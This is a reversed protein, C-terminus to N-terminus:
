NKKKMIWQKKIEKMKELRDFRKNESKVKAKAIQFARKKNQTFQADSGLIEAGSIKYIDKGQFFDRGETIIITKGSKTKKSFVAKQQQRSLAM